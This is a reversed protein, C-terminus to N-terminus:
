LAMSSSSIVKGVTRFGYDEKIEIDDYEPNLSRLCAKGGDFVLKKCYVDGSYVFIGIDGSSLIEQERVWVLQGDQFRPVMSDGSVRLAFDAADPMDYPAEVLEYGSEDLFNGRGASVPIDYLRILRPPNAATATATAAVSAPAPSDRFRDACLLLDIYELAKKRGAQNLGAYLGKSIGGFQWLVDDVDLMDCLALFQPISPQSICKEWNHITKANVKFGYASLRAAVDKQLLEKERRLAALTEGISSKM